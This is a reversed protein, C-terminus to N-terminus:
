CSLSEGYVTCYNQVTRRVDKKFDRDNKLDWYNMGAVEAHAPQAGLSFAHVFDNAAYGVLFSIAATLYIRKM